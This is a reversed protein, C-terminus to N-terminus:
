FDIYSTVLLNCLCGTCGKKPHLRAQRVACLIVELKVKFHTTIGSQESKTTNRCQKVPTLMELPKQQGNVNELTSGYSLLNM